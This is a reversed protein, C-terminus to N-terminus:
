VSPEPVATTASGFRNKSDGSCSVYGDNRIPVFFCSAREPGASSYCESHLYRMIQLGDESPIGAEEMETSLRTVRECSDLMWLMLTEGGWELDELAWLACAIIAPGYDSDSLAETVAKADSCGLVDHLFNPAGVSEILFDSAEEISGIPATLDEPSSYTMLLNALLEHGGHDYAKRLVALGEQYEEEPISADVIFLLQELLMVWPAGVGIGENIGDVLNVLIKNNIGPDSQTILGAFIRRLLSLRGTEVFYYLATLAMFAEQKLQYGQWQGQFLVDDETAAAFVKGSMAGLCTDAFHSYLEPRADGAVMTEGLYVSGLRSTVLVEPLELGDYVARALAVANSRGHWTVGNCSALAIRFRCVEPKLHVPDLKTVLRCILLAVAEVTLTRRVGGEVQFNGDLSGHLDIMIKFNTEGFKKYQETAAIALKALAAINEERGRVLSLWNDDTTPGNKIDFHFHQRGKRDCHSSAGLKQGTGHLVVVIPSAKSVPWRGPVETVTEELPNDVLKGTLFAKAAEDCYELDRPVYTGRQALCAAFTLASAASVGTVEPLVADFSSASARCETTSQNSKNHTCADDALLGAGEARAAVAAACM